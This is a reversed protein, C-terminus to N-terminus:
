FYFYISFFFYYSLLKLPWLLLTKWLPHPPLVCCGYLASWLYASDESHRLELFDSLFNIIFKCDKLKLWLNVETGMIRKNVLYAFLCSVCDWSHNTEKSLLGYTLSSFDYIVLGLNTCSHHRIRWITFDISLVKYYGGVLGVTSKNSVTNWNFVLPCFVRTGNLDPGPSSSYRSFTTEVEDDVRSALKWEARM